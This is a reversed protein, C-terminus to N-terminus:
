RYYYIGALALLLLVITTAVSILYLNPSDEKKLVVGKSVSEKYKFSFVLDAFAVISVILSLYFMAQHKTIVGKKYEWMMLVGLLMLIFLSINKINNYLTKRKDDNM